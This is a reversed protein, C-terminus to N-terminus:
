QKAVERYLELTERVAKEWSFAMARKLGKEVLRKKLYQDSLLNYMAEAIGDINLPDVLLAADGAIEPISSRNSAVVPTGCAMAEIVPMGFGEFLSPFIFIEAGSYLYPLENNDVVDTFITEKEAQLDQVIKWVSKFGLAKKGVILLPYRFNTSRRLLVCARLLSEINKKPEINGVFLFYHGRIGYKAKVVEIMAGDEMPRFSRDIGNHIVRIRGEEIKLLEMIEKKTFDSVAIVANARKAAKLRRKFFYESEPTLFDPHRLAMLDHVTVISKCNLCRPVFFCPGHFIDLRGTLLEVPLSLKELLPVTIKAPLKLLNKEPIGELDPGRSTSLLLYDNEHNIKLLNSVLNYTHQYLGARDSLMSLIRIDIGIRM